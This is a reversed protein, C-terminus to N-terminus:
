IGGSNNYADLFAALEVMESGPSTNTDFYALSGDDAYVLDNMSLDAEVMRGGTASAILADAAAIADLVDQDPFSFNAVNLKAATLQHFLKVLANGTDPLQFIAYLQAQTYVNGGITLSDVPWANDQPTQSEDLGTHTKWFGQTRPPNPVRLPECLGVADVLNDVPSGPVPNSSDYDPTSSTFAANFSYAGAPLPDTLMSDPISGDANLTVTETSVETGPTCDISSYFTYTVTGQPVFDTVVGALFFATDYVQTGPPVTGDTVDSGDPGIIATRLVLQGAGVQLPECESVGAALGHDGNYRAVFSYQGAHLAETNSTQWGDSGDMDTETWVPTGTCDITSFFSFTVSGTTVPNGDTDTVFAHDHVVSGLEVNFVSGDIPGLRDIPSVQHIQTVVDVPEERRAPGVYWEEYGGSMAETDGFRSYFYVFDSNKVGRFASEPVLLRLDAQGSGHNVDIMRVWNGVSPAPTDLTDPGSMPGDSGPVDGDMDWRLTGLTSLDTPSALLGGDKNTFIKVKNLSVLPIDSNNPENVDLLFERYWANGERVKPIDELQLDRTFVPSSNEDFNLKPSGMNRGSTNHGEPTGTDDPGLDHLRVFSDIVGSGAPQEDFLSFVGGNLTGSAMQTLDVVSPVTRDELTELSPRNHHRRWQSGQQRRPNGFLRDYLRSLVPQPSSATKM